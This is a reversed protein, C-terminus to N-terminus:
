PREQRNIRKQQPESAAPGSTGSGSGGIAWSRRHADSLGHTQIALTHPGTGYGKHQDFGYRPDRVALARMHEDRWVKALISAAAVGWSTMDAKVAVTVPARPGEIVPTLLDAQAPTTLWDHSGDLLIGAPEPLQALARMGALRLAGIISHEDVELAGAVGVAGRVHGVLLDHLSERRAPSLLKSDKVGPLPVVTEDIWVAGVVVPGAIAGRGVEDLSIIGGGLREVMALERELTPEPIPM